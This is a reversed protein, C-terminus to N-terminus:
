SSFSMAAPAAGTTAARGGIGLSPRATGIRIGAKSFSPVPSPTTTTAATDLISNDINDNNNNQTNMSDGSDNSSNDSSLGNSGRDHRHRQTSQPQHPWRFKDYKDIKNSSDKRISDKNRNKGVVLIGGSSRTRLLSSGRVPRAQPSSTSQAPSSSIFSTARPVVNRTTSGCANQGKVDAVSNISDVKVQVSGNIKDTAVSAQSTQSSSAGSATRSLPGARLPSKSSSKASTPTSSASSLAASAASSNCAATAAGAVPKQKPQSTSFLHSLLTPTQKRPGPTNTATTPVVTQPVASTPTSSHQVSRATADTHLHPKTGSIAAPVRLTPPTSRRSALSGTPSVTRNSPRRRSAGIDRARPALSSTFPSLSVTPHTTSPVTAHYQRERASKAAIYRRTTGKPTPSDLDSMVSNADDEGCSSCINVSSAKSKLRLRATDARAFSLGLTNDQLTIPETSGDYRYYELADFVHPFVLRDVSKAWLFDLHEYPRVEYAMTHKPLERLMVRIDVLSDSGGYVLVIPTKINRTPFKAVRYYRNSAGISLTRSSDDDYMQFSKNRIIQFWHVVSKTSTFSYLHPYAALKQHYSINRSSWAFLFSLGMDILRVFVPPYLISQWFTTSSLISRRGFALFLLNPSAKVLSDVVGNSLGAPSMAPALAIFLNIKDNLPPHISLAAFAQASGQSFGIYSLSPQSVMRLIYDISNPIDYFAFEDMSFNWFDHSTPSFRVSKKSYKNGRNNGLWVDYGQEVLAFPLCRAQDTICVWVDSNMLLGHHLYVVPKLISDQGANVQVNEASESKKYPLRHLILLYGDATQVVHEETAYGALACIDTFCSSSSIPEAKAADKSRARASYPSSCRNYVSKSFHYCFNLM